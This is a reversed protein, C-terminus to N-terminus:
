WRAVQEVRAVTTLGHSSPISPFHCFLRLLRRRGSWLWQRHRRRTLPLLDFLAVLPWVFLEARDLLLRTVGAAVVNNPYGWHRFLFLRLWLGLRWWGAGGGQGHRRRGAPLPDRQGFKWWNAHRNRPSSFGSLIALLASIHAPFGRFWRRWIWRCGRGRWPGCRQGHGMRPRPPSDLFALLWWCAARFLIASLGLSAERRESLPRSESVVVGSSRCCPSVDAGGRFSILGDAGAAIELAVFSDVAGGGLAAM